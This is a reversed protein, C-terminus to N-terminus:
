RGHDKGGNEDEKIVDSAPDDRAPAEMRVEMVRVTDPGVKYYESIRYGVIWLIHSGDALLLVSDRKERPIKEDIMFRRVTKTRGDALTIYDGSQRNRVVPMGKIRGCDFWKTYQNKPIETGKKYSFYRFVAETRPQGFATERRGVAVGEYERVARIGYPLDQSRGAQMGFLGLVQDVHGSTLDKARGGVRAMAQFIVYARLIEPLQEFEKEPILIRGDEERAHRGTWELAQGSLYDDAQGALRGVRLISEVAGPNVQEQLMPILQRRIRNRTYHDTDNTSDQCFSLGNASLWELIEKRGVAILPRIIRGRVPRMGGLGKLGSGRCLNHLITEAQDDGHHAVAVRVADTEPPDGAAAGHNGGGAERTEKAWANGGGAERTEEPWAHGGGAEGTGEPWVTGEDAEEAWAGSEWAAACEEFARYRLLRGAEEESLKEARAFQRVDVRRLVFPVEFRECLQRAFEADRDAEAGRLGHHVHVARVQVGLEGRLGCLLALLCVSDAGGSVAAVVRGGQRLMHYQEITERFKRRVDEM